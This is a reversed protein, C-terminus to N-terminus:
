SSTTSRQRINIGIGHIGFLLFAINVMLHHKWSLRNFIGGCSCPLHSGRNVLLFVIYFTFLSMLSVFFIIGLFSTKKITLLGVTLLEMLPILWALLEISIEPLPQQQLQYQFLKYDFLKSAAAYVFLLIFLSKLFALITSNM